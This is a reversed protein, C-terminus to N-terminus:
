FFHSGVFNRIKEIGTAEHVTSFKRSDQTITNCYLVLTDEIIEKDLIEYIRKDESDVAWNQGEWRFNEEEITSKM